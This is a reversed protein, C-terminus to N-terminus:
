LRPFNYSSNDPNFDEDTLGVNLQIDQYTYEEELVPAGGPQTPWSWAAYRVPVQLEDDIFIHAKHFDFGPKKDAHVVEILLCSRNNIKAGRVLRVECPGLERELEGRKILEQALKRIGIEYIPYRQGMMALFSEPALWVRKVNLLGTEHAVLKGDNRGKVWIVERGAISAPKLFKLYVGFPISKGNVEREHRIKASM